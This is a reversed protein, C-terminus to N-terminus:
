DGRAKLEEIKADKREEKIKLSEKYNKEEDNKCNSEPREEM